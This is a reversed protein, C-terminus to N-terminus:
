QILSVHETAKLQVELLGPLYLVASEAGEEEEAEDGNEEAGGRPISYIISESLSTHSSAVDIMAFSRSATKPFFAPSRAEVGEEYRGGM